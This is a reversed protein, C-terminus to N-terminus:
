GRPLGEALGSALLREYTAALAQPIVRADGLVPMFNTDGSWRPVIHWHVHDPLGAGACRGLNMGINFGQARVASTLLKRSDRIRLLTELLVEEPLDDLEAAHQTPAVLLHGSTYPYLNMLVLTQPSRWLVFNARDDAPTDRIRCLFCVEPRDARPPLQEVYEMRWPAWLNQEFEAM